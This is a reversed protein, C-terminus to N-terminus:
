RRAHAQLRAAEAAECPRPVRPASAVARVGEAGEGVKDFLSTAPEAFAYAIGILTSLAAVSILAWAHQAAKMSAYSRQLSADRFDLTWPNIASTAVQISQQLRTRRRRPMLELRPLLLISCCLSVTLHAASRLSGVAAGFLARARMARASTVARSWRSSLLHVLSDVWVALRGALFEELRSIMPCSCCEPQRPAPEGHAREPGVHAPEGAPATPSHDGHYRLAALHPPRSPLKAM